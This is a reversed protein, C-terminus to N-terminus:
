WEVDWLSAVEDEDLAAGKMKMVQDLIYENVMNRLVEDDYGLYPVILLRLDGLLTVKDLNNGVANSVCAKVSKMLDDAFMVENAPDIADDDVWDMPAAHVQRRKAKEGSDAGIRKIVDPYYRYLVYVYYAAAVCAMALFFDGWSYDSLM